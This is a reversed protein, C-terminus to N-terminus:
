GQFEDRLGLGQLSLVVFFCFPSVGFPSIVFLSVYASVVFPCVVLSSNEDLGRFRGERLRSGSSERTIRRKAAAGKGGRVKM